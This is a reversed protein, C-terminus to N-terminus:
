KGNTEALTALVVPAGSHASFFKSSFFDNDLLDQNPSLKQFSYSHEYFPKRALV